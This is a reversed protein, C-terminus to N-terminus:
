NIVEKDFFLDLQVGKFLNRIELLSQYITLIRELVLFWSYVTIKGKGHMIRALKSLEVLTPFNLSCDREIRLEMAPIKVELLERNM